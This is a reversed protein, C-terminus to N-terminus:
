KKYTNLLYLKFRSKFTFPSSSRVELPINNWLKPGCYSFSNKSLNIRASPVFYDANANSRTNHSHIESIKTFKQPLKIKGIKSKHMLLGIRYKYILDFNLMQLHSFLPLSPSDFREKLIVRVLQKQKSILPQLLSQSAGGWSSVCYQLHPYALSYYILKLTDLNAFSRIRCIAWLCKSLKSKVYNIHSKWCLKHDILVGLYKVEDKRELQCGDMSISMNTSVQRRHVLMYNTKRVNLKLKNALMWTEVKKLENNVFDQIHMFSDHSYSLCADDAFLTASLQTINPLDNIFVKFLFPGLVSGQPVGSSIALKTSFFGNINTYQSRNSLYNRLLNLPLGRVGYCHLKHLLLEHDVTDFAKSIDLFVSCTLAWFM